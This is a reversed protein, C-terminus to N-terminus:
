DDVQAQMGVASGHRLGLRRLDPTFHDFGPLRLQDTAIALCRLAHGRRSIQGRSPAVPIQRRGLHGLQRDGIQQGPDFAGHVARAPEIGALGVRGQAQRTFGTTVFGGGYTQIFAAGNCRCNVGYAGNGLTLKVTGGCFPCPLLETLRVDDTM